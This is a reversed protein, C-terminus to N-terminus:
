DEDVERNHKLRQEGKKVFENRAIDEANFEGTRLANVVNCGGILAAVAGAAGWGWGGGTVATFIGILGLIAIALNMLFEGFKKLFIIAVIVLAIGGITYIAEM